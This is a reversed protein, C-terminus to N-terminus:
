SDKECMKKLNNLGKEFQQGLHKMIFPGMLRAVPWAFAGNNQWTVKANTEHWPELLWNDNAISAFPKIFELKFHIHQQDLSTLTLSGKGVKPGEWEYRHGAQSPTGTITKVAKPDSQQWPNWISYHNLNSIRERVLDVPRSIITSREINYSGPLISAILLLLAILGLLIYVIIM